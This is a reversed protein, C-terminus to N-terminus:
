RCLAVKPLPACLSVVHVMPWGPPSKPHHCHQGQAAHTLQTDESTPTQFCHLDFTDAKLVEIGECGLAPSVTRAMAHLSHWTSALRMRDNVDLRAIQTFDTNFILGGSKSIVFLSYVVPM